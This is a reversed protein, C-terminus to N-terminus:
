NKRVTRIRQLKTYNSELRANNFAEQFEQTSTDSTPSFTFGTATVTGGPTTVSVTGSAGTDIVATIQTASDAHFSRAATGGFSVATVGTLNTGKIVVSTGAGASTPTFSTITPQPIAFTFGSVSATGGPTTVSVNGSTAGTGVTVIIQTSSVSTPSAIVGGITVSYASAIFNTGTITIPTGQGGTKPNFGSITPLLAFTFGTASATGGPTTISVAGSAGTGVVATIQTSSGAQFSQANTGGFSVITAGTLNTGTITVTKGQGAIMPAFSTITPIGFFTFSNTSTVTGGTNAVNVNGTAGAGVLATVQTGDSSATFSQAATGGFSVTTLNTFNTGTIIVQTGPGGSTPNFGTITPAPVIADSINVQGNNVTPNLPNQPDNKDTLGVDSLNFVVTGSAGNMARMHLICVIGTGTPAPFTSSNFDQGTLTLSFDGSSPFKGATTYSSIPLSPMAFEGISTGHQSNYQTEFGSYFTGEEVSNCQVKTSDWTLAFQIARTPVSTSVDIDVDFNAGPAVTQMSPNASVSAGAAFVPTRAIVVM